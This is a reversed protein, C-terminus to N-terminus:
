TSIIAKCGGAYEWSLWLGGEAIKRLQLIRKECERSGAPLFSIGRNEQQFSWHKLRMSVDVQSLGNYLNVKYLTSNM